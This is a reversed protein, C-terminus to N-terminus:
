GASWGTVVSAALLSVLLLLDVVRGWRSWVRGHAGVVAGTSTCRSTAAWSTAVGHIILPRIRVPFAMVGRFWLLSCLFVVDEM